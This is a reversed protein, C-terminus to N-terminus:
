PTTKEVQTSPKLVVGSGDGAAAEAKPSFMARVRGSPTSAAKPGGDVSFRDQLNEYMVTDGSIEDAVTSGRLRRLNAKKQFRVTDVRGDYLITEGNGEIYEDLGDRKQRFFALVQPSGQVTAYQYGDTDQRIEVREGRIVISGKTLVVNGTLVSVQRTEDYRLSDAEVQIPKSRDSREAWSPSLLTAILIGVLACHFPTKM